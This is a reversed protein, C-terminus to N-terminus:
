LTIFVPRGAPQVLHVTLQGPMRKQLVHTILQVRKAMIIRSPSVQICVTSDVIKLKALPLSERMRMATSSNM